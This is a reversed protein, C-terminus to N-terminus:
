EKGLSRLRRPLILAYPIVVCGFYSIVSGYVPGAVGWRRTLAISLLLNTVAMAAAAAAQSRLEGMGNLFMSIAHGLVLMLTWTALGVLLFPDSRVQEGVWADLIVPGLATLAVLAPILVGGSIILSRRLAMRIWEVDKRAAADSVAPWLPTLLLLMPASVLGFMKLPIAYDAVARVGMIRTIVLTDSAFAAASSFQLVFFWRGSAVLRRAAWRSFAKRRIRLETRRALLSADCGLAVLPGAGAMLIFWELGVDLSIATVIGALSLLAGLATWWSTVFGEQYAARVSSVIGFPLGVLFLVATAGVARAAEAQLARSVKFVLAWDIFPHLLAFVIGLLAGIGCILLASTSVLAGIRERNGEARAVAVLNTLGDDLGGDAFTILAAASTLAIWFGYGDSGLFGLIMPTSVITVTVSVAKSAIASGGSLLVKRFREAGELPPGSHLDDVGTADGLNGGTRWDRRM